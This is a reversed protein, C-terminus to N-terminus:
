ARARTPVERVLLLTVAGLLTGTIRRQVTAWSPRRALFTAIAGAAIVILANVTLSVAIQVSGLTLGQATPHGRHPDIFQPILTLYMIAAKPNLLNTVLGMRLLRAPSDRPIDRVEFMGRGGPRLAQWALHALYLVGATKFGIFLWPVAVFVVALGLNGMLMYVVFGVGTGALSVLGAARGQSISRSVLYIMNPGPTLVMVLATLAMGLASAGSVPSSLSTLSM